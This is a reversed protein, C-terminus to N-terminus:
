FSKWGSRSLSAEQVTEGMGRGPLPNKLSTKKNFISWKMSPVMMGSLQNIRKRARHFYLGGKPDNEYEAFTCM